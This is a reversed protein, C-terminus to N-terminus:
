GESADNGEAKLIASCDAVCDDCIYGGKAGALLNRVQEESRGCFSCSLLTRKTPTQTPV